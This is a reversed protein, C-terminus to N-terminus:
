CAGRLLSPLSRASLLLLSRVKALLLSAMTAEARQKFMDFHERLLPVGANWCRLSSLAPAPRCVEDRVASPRTCHRPPAGGAAPSAKALQQAVREVSEPSKLCMKAIRKRNVVAGAVCRGETLSVCRLRGLRKRLRVLFLSRWGHARLSAVNRRTCRLPPGAVRACKSYLGPIADALALSNAVLQMAQDAKLRRGDVVPLLVDRVMREALKHSQRLVLRVEEELDRRKSHANFEVCDGCFEALVRFLGAVSRSFSLTVPFAAPQPAGEPHLGAAGVESDYERKSALVLPEYREKDVVAQAAAAGEAM